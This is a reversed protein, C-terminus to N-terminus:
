RGNAMTPEERPTARTWHQQHRLRGPLPKVMPAYSITGALGGNGVSVLKTNWQLPMWLEFKVEADVVAVVRCFPPAEFAPIRPGGAPAAFTGAPVSTASTITIAPLRVSLLKECAPQAHSTAAFVTIAAFTHVLRRNIM